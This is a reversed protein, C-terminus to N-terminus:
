RHRPPLRGPTRSSRAALRRGRWAGPHRQHAQLPRPRTLAIASTDTRLVDDISRLWGSLEAHKRTQHTQLATLRDIGSGAGSLAQRARVCLSGTDVSDAVGNLFLAYQDRAEIVTAHINVALSMATARRSEDYGGYALLAVLPLLIVAFQAAIRQNLSRVNIM